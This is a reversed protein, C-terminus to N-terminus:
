KKNLTSYFENVRSNIIIKNPSFSKLYLGELTKVRSLAVYTQGYAFIANGVDVEVLDLSAGQAKHITIAWATVLPIQHISLHKINESNWAHWKITRTPGNHFQVVPFGSGEQFHLIIGTSGNCVGGGVDLNAICMVQAGKKLVLKGEFPAHKIMYQIEHAHNAKYPATITHSGLVVRHEFNHTSTTLQSLKKKNLRDVQFKRPYLITPRIGHKLASVDKDMCTKLLQYSKKSMKGKRIQNLIKTFRPDTQRHIKSLEVQTEMNENWLASEFCYKDNGMPALQHFDGSLIVQIGGFPATCKRVSKAISDLLNFLECSMMSVEDIILIDVKKWRKKKYQTKMISRVLEKNSRKMVGIGAWSHLTKANTNLLFAACGTMACCQVERGNQLANNVMTKILHSKGSGAPGTIFINHGQTFKEMVHKQTPTLTQTDDQQIPIKNEESLNLIKGTEEICKGSEESLNLTRYKKFTFQELTHKYQQEM